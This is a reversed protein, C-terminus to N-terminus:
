QNERQHCADGAGRYQSLWEGYACGRGQGSFSASNPSATRLPKRKLVEACGSEGRLNIKSSLLYSALSATDVKLGYYGIQSGAFPFAERFETIRAAM